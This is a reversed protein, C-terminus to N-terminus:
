SSCHSWLHVCRPWAAVLVLDPKVGLRLPVRLFASFFFERRSPTLDECGALLAPYLLASFRLAASGCGINVVSYSNLDGLRVRCPRPRSTELDPQNAFAVPSSGDLAALFQPETERTGFVNQAAADTRRGREGEGWGEGWPSPARDPTARSAQIGRNTAVRGITRGRGPPSPRPSPSRPKRGQWLALLESCSVRWVLNWSRTANSSGDGGRGRM